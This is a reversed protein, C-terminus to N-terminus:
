VEHSGGQSTDESKMLGKCLAMFVGIMWGLMSGIVVILMSSKIHAMTYSQYMAPMDMKVSTKFVETTYFEDVTENIVEVLSILQGKIYEMSEEVQKVYPTVDTQPVAVNEETEQEVETARVGLKELVDEYYEKDYQLENAQQQAELAQEILVDYNEGGQPVELKGEDDQGGMVLVKDKQYQNAAERLSHALQRQNTIQLALKQISDQYISILREKDKTLNFTNIIAQTNNIDINRLMEVQTKLDSFSMGTGKARFTPSKSIYDELYTQIDKLETDVLLMYESYDYKSPETTTIAASLLEKDSYTTMFYQKYNNILTSLVEEAEEDTIDMDNTVALTIKYQTSYYELDQLSQLQTVDKEAMKQILAMQTQVEAPVIGELTINDRLVDADIGKQALGLQQVTMDLVSKNLLDGMNFIEGDPALGEEIGEFNFSLVTNVQGVKEPLVFANLGAFLTSIIFACLTIIIILNKADVIKKFLEGLSIENDDMHEQSLVIQMKSQTALSQISEEVTKDM